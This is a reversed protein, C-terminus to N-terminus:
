PLSQLGFTVGSHFGYLIEFSEILIKKVVDPWPLVDNSIPEKRSPASFHKLPTLCNFTLATKLLVDRNGKQLATM